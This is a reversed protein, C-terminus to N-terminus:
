LGKCCCVAYTTDFDPSNLVSYPMLCRTILVTEFFISVLVRCCCCLLISLVLNVQWWVSEIIRSFIWTEVKELAVEFTQPDEWDDSSGASNSKLKRRHPSEHLEPSFKEETGNEDANNKTHTRNSLQLKGTLQDVISRLM